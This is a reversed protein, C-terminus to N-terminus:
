PIRVPHRGVRIAAMAKGLLDDRLAYPQIEVEAHAKSVDLEHHGETSHLDTILRDAAPAVLEALRIGGFQLSSSGLQPVFPVQIFHKELDVAHLM